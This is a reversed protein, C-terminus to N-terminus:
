PVSAAPGGKLVLPMYQEHVNTATPVPTATETPSPAPTETASATASPSTTATTTATPTTSATPSPTITATATTSPTASPILSPTATPSPTPTPSGTSTPSGTPTVTPSLRQYDIAVEQLWPTEQHDPSAVLTARYRLYRSQSLLGTLDVSNTGSLTVTAVVRWDSWLIADGSTSLALTISTVPPVVAQWTLTLWRSDGTADYISSDLHGTPAYTRPVTLAETLTTTGTIPHTYVTGMSAGATALRASAVASGLSTVTVLTTHRWSAINKSGDGWYVFGDWDGSFIVDLHGDGNLDAVSNALNRYIRLSTRQAVDYTATPNGWYVYSYDESGNSFILDLYGDEDLDAVSVGVAGVTPLESRATTTYGATSGWYIYSPVKFDCCIGYESHYRNSFILDLHGDGNLDAATNDYAGITLLGTRRVPNYGEPGGWYIYSDIDSFAGDTTNSFILDLYGDQNLDIASVGVARQVPLGTRNAPSYGGPGGWYIYSDVDVTVGDTSNAFVIDLYGDGNLDAVANSLSGLTPLATRRSVSYGGPGGWYIYSDITYTPHEYSGSRQNSFVLDLYGDYNLDAVSVGVAGRTPLGTRRQNKFGDPGGWYIYSDVNHSMPPYQDLWNSFILDPYGDQNLDGSTTYPLTYGLGLQGPTRSDLGDGAAYATPDGEGWAAQGPGGSWDTQV